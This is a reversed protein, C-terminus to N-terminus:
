SQYYFYEIKSIQDHTEIGNHDHSKEQEAVTQLEEHIQVFNFSEETM